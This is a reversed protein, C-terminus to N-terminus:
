AASPLYVTFTTGTAADSKVTVRGDHAQVIERVIALGLGSSDDSRSRDVRYFREFIRNIHEPPIHSGPNHVEVAVWGPASKRRARAADLDSTQSVDSYARVQVIGGSPTHKVANDLLNVFVQQLRHGDAMVAPVPAAVFEVSLGAHSAQPQVQRVCAQLLDPLQLSKRQIPIQGSEIKSLYLLDEVLRRMRDAEEGIIRAADAYEDPTKITGDTMAQAFGEISTLPTRLDHSVNALLDRMTQHMRGVERAMTNFSTALQGVEDHSGVPIFQEFDGRAMQESARTVQGLPGAISRALWLAVAISIIVALIAAGTLGPAMQLWASSVSQEPVALALDDPAPHAGDRDGGSEVIVFTLPQEGPPELRGWELTIASRTRQDSPAPLYQGLLTTGTDHTIQHQSNVLILRVHLQSAQDRLFQDIELPSAGAREFRRLQFTLPLSLDGLQNLRLQTQYARVLYTFGSGALALSLFIVILYSAILKSRLSGFM